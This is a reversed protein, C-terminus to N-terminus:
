IPEYDVNFERLLSYYIIQSETHQGQSPSADCRGPHISNRVGHFSPFTGAGKVVLNSSHNFFYLYIPPHPTLSHNGTDM